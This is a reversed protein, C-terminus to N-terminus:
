AAVQKPATVLRTTIIIAALTAMYGVLQLMTPQDSYGILTHLIRGTISKESLLGSTDWVTNSLFEVVGAKELFSISQAAMGAALLTILWSTVKFVHRTPIKLLGLYTVASMTAGASLGMFAGLTISKVTGGGGILVGYLFLVLESGERLVAAGVVIALAALTKRGERVENGAQKLEGAMERGHVAMWINHWALMIVAIALIIANFIEQGFGDFYAAITGTFAAVICSGVIGGLLGLSVWLRSGVVSRTAALVIGIILGAEIVERFVIILAGIM